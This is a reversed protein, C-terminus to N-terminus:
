LSCAPGSKACIADNGETEGECICFKCCALEGVPTIATCRPQKAGCIESLYSCDAHSGCTRTCHAPPVRGLMCFAGGCDADPWSLVVNGKEAMDQGPISCSQSPAAEGDGRLGADRRLGSAGDGVRGVAPRGDCGVLVLVSVGIVIDLGFHKM